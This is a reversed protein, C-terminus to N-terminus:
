RRSLIMARTVTQRNEEELRMSKNKLDSTASSFDMNQTDVKVKLQRVEDVLQFTVRELQDKARVTEDLENRM